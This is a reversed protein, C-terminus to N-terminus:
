GKKKVYIYGIMIIITIIISIIGWTKISQQHQKAKEVEAERKGQGWLGLGLVSGVALGGALIMGIAM